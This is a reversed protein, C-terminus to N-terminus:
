FVLEAQGDPHRWIPPLVDVLQTAFCPSEVAGEYRHPEVNFRRWSVFITDLGGQDLAPVFRRKSDVVDLVVDFLRSTFVDRANIVPDESFNSPAPEDHRIECSM